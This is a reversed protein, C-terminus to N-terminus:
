LYRPEFHIQRGNKYQQYTPVQQSYNRMDRLRKEFESYVYNIEKPKATYVKKKEVSPKSITVKTATKKPTYLSQFMEKIKTFFGKKKTTAPKKITENKVIAPRTVMENKAVIPKLVCKNSSYLM